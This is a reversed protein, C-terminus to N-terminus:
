CTYEERVDNDNGEHTCSMFGLGKKRPSYNLMLSCIGVTCSLAVAIYTTLMYIRAFRGPADFREREDLVPMPSFLIIRRQTLKMVADSRCQLITMMVHMVLDFVIWGVVIMFVAEKTLNPGFFHLVAFDQYAAPSGPIANSTLMCALGMWYFLFGMVGHLIIIVGRFQRNLPRIGGLLFLLGSIVVSIWGMIRHATAAHSLSVGFIAKSGIQRTLGVIFLLVTIFSLSLHVFYWVHHLFIRNNMFTEKFYRTMFFSVPTVFMVLITMFIGHILRSDFIFLTFPDEAALMGRKYANSKKFLANNRTELEKLKIDDISGPAFTTLITFPRPPLLPCSFNRMKEMVDCIFTNRNSNEQLRKAFTIRSDHKRQHEVTKVIRGLAPDLNVYGYQAMFADCKPPGYHTRGIGDTNWLSDRCRGNIPLIEDRFWTAIPFTAGIQDDMFGIPPHRREALKSTDLVVDNLGLHEADVGTCTADYYYHAYAEFFLSGPTKGYLICREGKVWAPAGPLRDGAHARWTEWDFENLVRQVASHFHAQPQYNAEATRPYEYYDDWAQWASKMWDDRSYPPDQFTWTRRGGFKKRIEDKEITYPIGSDNYWPPHLSYLEEKTPVDIIYKIAGGFTSDATANHNLVLDAGSTISARHKTKTGPWTFDTSNNMIWEGQLPASCKVNKVGRPVPDANEYYTPGHM